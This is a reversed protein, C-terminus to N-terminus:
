RHAYTHRGPKALLGRWGCVLLDGVQAVEEREKERARSTDNRSKRQRAFLAIVRRTWCSVQTLLVPPRLWGLHGVSPACM